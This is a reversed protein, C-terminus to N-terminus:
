SSHQVIYSGVETSLVKEWMATTADSFEGRLDILNTGHATAIGRQLTVVLLLLSTDSYGLVWKNGLKAFDIHELLEILLEG